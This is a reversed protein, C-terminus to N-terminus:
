WECLLSRSPKSEILQLHYQRAENLRDDAEEFREKSEKLHEDAEKRRHEAEGHLDPNNVNFLLIM